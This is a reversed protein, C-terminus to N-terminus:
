CWAKSHKIAQDAMAKYTNAVWQQLAVLEQDPVEQSQAAFM